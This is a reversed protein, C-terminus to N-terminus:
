SQSTLDIISLDFFKSIYKPNKRVIEQERDNHASCYNYIEERTAKDYKVPNLKLQNYMQTMRRKNNSALTIHNRSRSKGYKIIVEKDEPRGYTNSSRVGRYIYLLGMEELAKNYGIITTVDQGLMDAITENKYIGCKTNNDLTTLMLLYHRLLAFPRKHQQLIRYVDNENIMEFHDFRKSDFSAKDIKYYTRNLKEGKLLGVEFLHNLASPIQDSTSHPIELTNWGYFCIESVSTVGFDRFPNFIAIDCLCWVTVELATFESDQILNTPVVLMKVGKM